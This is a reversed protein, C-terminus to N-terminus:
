VILTYPVKMLESNRIKKSFSDNTDDVKVRFDQKRMQAALEYAYDNFKDAVPVIQFQVPAM